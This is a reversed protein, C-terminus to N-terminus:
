SAHHRLGSDHAPTAKRQWGDQAHKHMDPKVKSVRLAKVHVSKASRVEGFWCQGRPTKKYRSRALLM